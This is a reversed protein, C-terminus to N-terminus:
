LWNLLFLLVKVVLLVFAGFAAVRFVGFGFRTEVVVAGDTLSSCGFVGVVVDDM